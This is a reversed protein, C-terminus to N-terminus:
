LKLSEKEIETFVKSQKIYNGIHEKLNKSSIENYNEIIFTKDEDINEKYKLVKPTNEQIGLRIFRLEVNNPEKAIAYEIYDKGVKFAEVKSQIGKQTKAEIALAAGKYGIFVPSSDKTVDKVLDIFHAIKTDDQGAEKYAQRLPELDKLPIYFLLIIHLLVWKM